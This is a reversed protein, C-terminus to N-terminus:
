VPTSMGDNSSIGAESIFGVHLIQVFPLDIAIDRIVLETASIRLESILFVFVALAV